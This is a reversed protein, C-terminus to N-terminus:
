PWTIASRCTTVSKEKASMVATTAANLPRICSCMYRRCAQRHRRPSQVETWSLDVVNRLKHLACMNFATERRSQLASRRICTRLNITVYKAASCFQLSTLRYGRLPLTGQVVVHADQEATMAVVIGDSVSTLIQSCSLATYWTVHVHFIVFLVVVNCLESM